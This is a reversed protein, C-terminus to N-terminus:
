VTVYDWDKIDDFVSSWDKMGPHKLIDEVPIEPLIEEVLGNRIFIANFGYDNAGVLRYGKKNALKNMAVASAGLYHPHVGPYVYDPDYPVVISRLGFEIHTEVMVVKPRIVEIAQWVWYDNGDIDISLFDVDGPLPYRSLLDNINEAKVKAHIFKPPYIWTDPHKAYFSMGQRIAKRNGDILLGTWGFNLALNACNNNIGDAAGIDVFVGRPIDLAAFIFLLKGDEEFQSFCRFGTESLRPYCGSNVSERYYHFLQRQAIKTQPSTKNQLSLSHTVTDTMKSSFRAALSNILHQPHLSKVLDFFQKM